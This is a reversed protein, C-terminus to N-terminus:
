AVTALDCYGLVRFLTTVSTKPFELWKEEVLGICEGFLANDVEPIQSIFSPTEAVFLILCIVGSESLAGFQTYRGLHGHHGHIEADNEFKTLALNADAEDGFPGQRFGTVIGQSRNGM